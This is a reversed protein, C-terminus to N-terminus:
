KYEEIEFTNKDIIEIEYSRHESIGSNFEIWLDQSGFCPGRTKCWAIAENQSSVHSLRPITGNSLSFIFSESTKKYFKNISFNEHSAQYILEFEFPIDKFHYPMEQKKDIWTAIVAADKADIIKSNFSYASQLKDFSLQSFKIHPICNHLVKELEIFDTQTWKTLDDNKLLKILIDEDLKLFDNSEFIIKPNRCVFELAFQYLDTFTYHKCITIFDKPFKLASETELLLKEVTQKLESLQIEDAAIFIEFLRVEENNFFKRSNYREYSLGECITHCSNM